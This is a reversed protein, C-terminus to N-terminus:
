SAVNPNRHDPHQLRPILLIVLVRGHSFTERVWRSNVIIELWRFILMAIDSHGEDLRNRETGRKFCLKRCDPIEVAVDLLHEIWVTHEWLFVRKLRRRPCNGSTM